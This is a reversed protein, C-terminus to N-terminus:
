GAAPPRDNTRKVYEIPEKGEVAKGVGWRMWGEWVDDMM